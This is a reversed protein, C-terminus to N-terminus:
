AYRRASTAFDARERAKASPAQPQYAIRAHGTCYPGDDKRAGCLTFAESRPDGIPWRCMHSALTEITASGPEEIREVYKRPPKSGTGVGSGFVLGGGVPKPPKRSNMRQPSLKKVKPGQLKRRQAVSLRPQGNSPPSSPLSRESVGLRHVKGIVASRTLGGLKKAIESASLGEAWLTTLTEVREPTWAAAPNHVPVRYGASSDQVARHVLNSM